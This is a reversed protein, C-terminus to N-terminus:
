AAWEKKIRRMAARMVRPAMAQAARRNYKDWASGVTRPSILTTEVSRTLRGPTEVTVTNRKSGLGKGKRQMRKGVKDLVENMAPDTLDSSRLKGVVRGLGPIDVTLRPM